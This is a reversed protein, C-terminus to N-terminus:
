PTARRSEFLDAQRARLCHPSFWVREREANAGNGRAASYGGAAKWAVCRWTPPMDHEGEYGCLAIRLKPDKGHALAWERAERSVDAADHAYLAPDRGADHAYPPDLLVATVGIQTTAAPTLVRKWDGCCVRVYRLRAALQEMWELLAQNRRGSAHVGRGAAGRSGALDPKQQWPTLVPPAAGDGAGGPEQLRRRHVGNATTLRPRKAYEVDKSHDRARRGHIGRMGNGPHARGKWQPATCWGSGIWQSIGWVWRGAVLADFHLPDQEMRTRFEGNAVLWRHWAHLEVESVPNDAHRAVEEPAQSLARWFNALYHDLDNVTEVRPATPRALLVALSGAFPEVYNPVDGFGEWILSAARSKGGFWPFPAKLPEGSM